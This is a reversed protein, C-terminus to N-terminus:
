RISRLSCSYAAEVGVPAVRLSEPDVDLAADARQERVGADAALVQGGAVDHVLTRRDAQAGVVVEDAAM